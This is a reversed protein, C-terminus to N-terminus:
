GRGLWLLILVAAIASLGILPLDWLVHSRYRPSEVARRQVLFRAMAAATVLWGAVAVPVGFLLGHVHQLVELKDIVFGMGTVILGTRVFALLTRVNALHDRARVGEGGGRGRGAGPATLSM